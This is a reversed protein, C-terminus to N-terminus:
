GERESNMSLWYMALVVEVMAVMVMLNSVKGDSGAIEEVQQKLSKLLIATQYPILACRGILKCRAPVKKM